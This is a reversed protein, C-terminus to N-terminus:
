PRAEICYFRETVGVLSNDEKSATGGTATVDGPLETWTPQDLRAKYQVRYSRGDIAGWRLIVGNGSVSVSDVRVPAAVTINFSTTASGIPTGTDSVQLTVTKVTGADAASSTWRFLGSGSDISAGTPGSVLSFSLANAPIDTDGASVQVTATAGAHLTQSSISTLTPAVNVENVTIQFSQSTSLSPTGNDTARVTIPFTGPGQAETPTWSVLGTGSVGLGTPGSVLAFTLTNAPQDTDSASLQYTWAVAENINTDPPDVLTPAVNVENVTIQFSQNTSLSPTGNDTVRVTVPFTGPGQAETPTWSVLGTGSVGLGTPGSVLAFTLTNAPLDTDSASLQCAWAVAENINTDPPDVLTPAVNVEHVTIQFSQSANLSPTGDDSVRVTATFTGPGQAETPTWSVLGAGSVGLGTPGSVLAFALTNAPLDTDSASLQCAWAVAENINTDPPDVLTPAVNVESVTIQFSQNASLSPTGNDTVRVTATFTGPGQAETPTWSVVGAGSVGLGTPGSVLSYTLTNAPVDPDTASLQCTWAVQENINTDPPDVLVPLRNIENVHVTVTETDSLPPVGDDTVRVTVPYDGPGQAETPTWAFSGTVPNITAGAPAGADLSFTLVDNPSEPDTAAATFNLATEEEVTLSGIPNLEPPHNGPIIQFSYPVPTPSWSSLVLVHIGDLRPTAEFDGNLSYGGLSTDDPSYCNWTAGPDGALSDFLYRLGTGAPFRLLRAEYGTSLTGNVVTDSSILPQGGVDLLRFTYDTAGFMQSDQVLEYTGTETLTVPGFDSDSNGSFLNNGSPSILSVYVADFDAELADYYLTQGATANFTLHHADGAGTLSGTVPTGLTLAQTVAAPARLELTYPVPDVVYGGVILLYTGDQAPLEIETDGVANGSGVWWDNPALLGWTANYDSGSGHVFLRRRGSITLRYVHTQFGPDLTGTKVEGLAISSAPAQAADILRFAGDANEAQGSQFAVYYTGAQALTLPGADNQASYYGSSLVYSGDPGFVTLAMSNLYQNTLSDYYLRQGPAGTFRYFETEFPADLTHTVSAGLTLATSDSALDLLRFRYDGTSSGDVGKVTLTYSGSDPLVWPGTDNAPNASFVVEDDANRLEAMLPYYTGDQSDFYVLLGAPATYAYPHEEGAGISGSHVAGFGSPAGSPATVTRRIGYNLPTANGAYGEILVYYTAAAPLVVEPLDDSIAGSALTQDFLGTLRWSAETGSASVSELLVNQGALGDFRYLDTENPPNLEGSATASLVTASALNLLRFRYDSVTDSLGGVVLTYTGTQTLTIPGQDGDSNGYFLGNGSPDMLQMTIDDYDGDQADYYIRMGTTGSFSYRHDEGPSALTGQTVSGLTLASSTSAPIRVNFSYPVPTASSSYLILVYSGSQSLTLAFDGNLSSSAAPNNNPGYLTWSGNATEDLSDFFLRQGNTGDFRYVAMTNAPDLTGTVTANFALAIAPSQATDILRFSFDGLTDTGGGLVLTYTGTMTLTFPGSDYDSSWIGFVPNGDPTLLRANINDFDADLADYYLRQGFSGAFTFRREEGATALTGTTVAGLTLPATTTEAAVVRFQYPVPDATSSAVILAYTGTQPLVSEFDVTVNNGAVSQDVPGMLTWSANADSGQGDFFLRQGATGNFRFLDAQWGSNLTRSVTANLSLASAPAQALHLLRFQFDEPTAASSKVFLHYLGPETLTVPGADGGAWWWSILLQSGSPAVLQAYGASLTTNLFDLYLRQGPSGTFRYAETEYGPDLSGSLTAGYTLPTADALNLLRVSYTGSSFGDAGRIDLTYNGSDPLMVPGTDSLGYVGFLTTGDGARLEAILASGSEDLSDFYVLTGAPATYSFSNTEGPNIGGTHVTGFGSPSGSPNSIVSVRIQYDLTGAGETTGQVFVLYSGSAPLVVEGPSFAINHGALTRGDPAVLSWGADSLSASISELNVRQGATGSFRYLEAETQPDLGGSTTTGLTL